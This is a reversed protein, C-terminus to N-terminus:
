TASSRATAAGSFGLSDDMCIPDNNDAFCETNASCPQGPGQRRARLRAAGPVGSGPLRHPRQQRRRRLEHLEARAPARLGEAFSGQRRLRLRHPLRQGAHLDPLLRRARLDDPRRLLISGAARDDATQDCFESCYGDPSASTTRLCIPDNHNATREHESLVAPRGAAGLMCDPLTQCSTADDCISTATTTTTTSTPARDEPPLIDIDMSFSGFDDETNGDIM